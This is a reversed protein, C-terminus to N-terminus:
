DKKSTDPFDNHPSVSSTEATETEMTNGADDSAKSSIPTSLGVILCVACTFLIASLITKINKM